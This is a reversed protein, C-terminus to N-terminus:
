AEVPVTMTFIGGANWTIQFTGAESSKDEGFNICAILPRDADAAPTADYVVAYRATLTSTTWQADDADFKTVRGSVTVAPNTLEDGEHTYGTGSVENTTDDWFDHADQDPTYSSTHLSCKITDTELNMLKELANLPCNSYIFATVAM